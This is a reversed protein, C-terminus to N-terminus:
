CHTRRCASPWPCRQVMNAPASKDKNMAQVQAWGISRWAQNVLLMVALQEWHASDNRGKPM